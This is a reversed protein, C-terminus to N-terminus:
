STGTYGFIILLKRVWYAQRRVDVKCKHSYDPIVVWSNPYALITGVFFHTDRDTGCLEYFFKERVTKQQM